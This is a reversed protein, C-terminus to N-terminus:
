KSAFKTIRVTFAILKATFFLKKAPTLFMLSSTRSMPLFLMQMWCYETNSYKFRFLVCIEKHMQENNVTFDVASFRVINSIKQGPFLNALEHEIQGLTVTKKMSQKYNYHNSM